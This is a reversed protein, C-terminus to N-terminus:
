LTMGQNILFYLPLIFSFVDIVSEPSTNAAISRIAPRLLRSKREDFPHQPLEQPLTRPGRDLSAVQLPDVGSRLPEIGLRGIYQFILGQFIM